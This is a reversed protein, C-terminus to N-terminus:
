WGEWSAVGLELCIDHHPGSHWVGASPMGFLTGSRDRDVVRVLRAVESFSSHATREEEVLTDDLDFIVASHTLCRVIHPIGCVPDAAGWM